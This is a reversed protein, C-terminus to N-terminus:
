EQYHQDLLRPRSSFTCCSEHGARPGDDLFQGSGVEIELAFPSFEMQVAAIPHVAHAKRLTKASCESLGLYRIKGEKQLEVMATVTEEIPTDTDVRRQYHLDVCDVGLRESSTACAEKVYAADGRVVM